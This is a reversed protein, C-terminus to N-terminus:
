YRGTLFRTLGYDASGVASMITEQLPVQTRSNASKIREIAEDKMQMLRDHLVANASATLRCAVACVLLDNFDPPMALTDNLGFKPISKNYIIELIYGAQPKIDFYINTLPYEGDVAFFAPVGTSTGSMRERLDVLSIQRIKYPQATSSTRLLISNIFCPRDYPIDALNLADDADIGISYSEKASAIVYPVIKRSFPLLQDENLQAVLNNLDILSMAYQTGTPEQSFERSTIQALQHAQSLISKIQTAM